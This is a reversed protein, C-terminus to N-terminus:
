VGDRMKLWAPMRVAVRAYGDSTLHVGDRFVNARTMRHNRDALPRGVHRIIEVSPSTGSIVARLKAEAHYAHSTEWRLDSQRPTPGLVTVRHAPVRSLLTSFVSVVAHTSLQRPRDTSRRPYADNGGLWLVVRGEAEGDRISARWEILMDEIRAALRSFALGGVALNLTGDPFDVNFPCDSAISDGLILHVQGPPRSGCTRGPRAGACWSGAEGPVRVCAPLTCRVNDVCDVCQFWENRCNDTSHWVVPTKSADTSWM